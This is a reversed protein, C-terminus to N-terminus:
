HMNLFGKEPISMERERTRSLSFVAKKGLLYDSVASLLRYVHFTVVADYYSSAANAAGGEVVQGPPPCSGQAEVAKRRAMVTTARVAIGPDDAQGVELM